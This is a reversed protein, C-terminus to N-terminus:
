FNITVKKIVGDDGVTLLTEDDLWECFELGGNHLEGLRKNRAGKFTELDTWVIASKDHCATVLKTGDPSFKVATIVHTHYSWGFNVVNDRAANWVLVQNHQTSVTLNKPGYAVPGAALQHEDPTAGAATLEDGSLKFFYSVKASGGGVIIETDDENFAVSVADKVTATAVTRGNRVVGIDGKRTVYVVLDADKRGAALASVASPTAVIVGGYEHKTTSAVRVSNDLGASYLYKGDCSVALASVMLGTSTGTFWKATGRAVDWVAINGSHDATYAEGRSRDLALASIKDSHGYVVDVPADQVATTSPCLLYLMTNLIHTILLHISHICNFVVCHVFYSLGQLGRVQDEALVTLVGSVSLAIIKGAPTWALSALQDAFEDRGVSSAIKWTKTVAGSELDWVKVTKDASATAFKKGCASWALGYIAGTHADVGADLTRTLEGSQGDYVLVKSDSGVTVFVAGDPSFRVVNPFRKHPASRHLYKFPPGSYFLVENGEDTTVM